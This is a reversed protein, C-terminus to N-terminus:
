GGGGALAARVGNWAARLLPRWESTGTVLLRGLKWATRPRLYFARQFRAGQARVEAEPRGDVSLVAANLFRYENWDETRIWGNGRAEDWLPTGPYPTLFSVQLYDPDAERALALTQDVEAQTEGPVNLIVFGMTSLGVSRAARFASRVAEPALRKRLFAMGARSGSEIGMEVRACGAAKMHALLPRDVLDARTLCIWRVRGPLGLAELAAIFREVWQRDVSFTDDIFSFFRVGFDRAVRDMEEAVARPDRYRMRKGSTFPVACYACPYPCGRMALLTSFADSDPCRYARMPLLDRAPLPLADLDAVPEAVGGDVVGGGPARFAVGPLPQTLGAGSGLRELLPLITGEAEGRVIVDLAPLENLTRQPLATGHPGGLVVALDPRRAKLGAAIAGALPVTPTVATLGLVDPSLRLAAEVTAELGLGLANADLISVAHGAQRAVAAVYALGLPPGLSTQAIHKIRAQFPPNVLVLRASM